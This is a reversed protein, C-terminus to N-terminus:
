KLGGALEVLALGDANANSRFYAGIDYTGSNSTTFKNYDGSAQDDVIYAAQNACNTIGSAVPVYIMGKTMVNMDQYAPYEEDSDRYSVHSIMTVGLFKLSADNSDGPYGTEEDGADVFVPEGFGFSVGSPVVKAEADYEIGFALGARAPDQTYEYMDM